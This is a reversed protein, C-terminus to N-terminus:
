LIHQINQYEYLLFAGWLIFHTQFRLFGKLIKNQPYPTRYKEFNDIMESLGELPNGEALFKQKLEIRQEETECEGCHVCNYLRYYDNQTFKYEEKTEILKRVEDDSIFNKPDVEDTPYNKRGKIREDM